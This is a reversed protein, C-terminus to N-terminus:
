LANLLKMLHMSSLLIQGALNLCPFVSGYSVAREPVLPSCGDRVQLNDSDMVSGAFCLDIHIPRHPLFRRSSFAKSSFFLCLIVDSSSLLNIM